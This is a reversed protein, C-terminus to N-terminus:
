NARNELSGSSGVEQERIEEDVKKRFDIVALTFSVFSMGFRTILVVFKEWAANKEQENERPISEFHEYYDKVFSAMDELENFQLTKVYEVFEETTYSKM